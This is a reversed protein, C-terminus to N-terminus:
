TLLVDPSGPFCNKLFHHANCPFSLDGLITLSEQLEAEWSVFGKMEPLAPSDVILGPLLVSLKLCRM